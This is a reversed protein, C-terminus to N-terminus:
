FTWWVLIQVALLTYGIWTAACSVVMVISTLHCCVVDLMPLGEKHRRVAMLQWVTFALLLPPLILNLLSNTILVIRFMIVLSALIMLPMYIKPAHRLQEGKLRIYLSLFIVELLWAMTIILSTSMQIFNRDVLSRVIMVIVAFLGVGIVNTLMQRKLRFNEGRWRRPLLWRLVVYTIGLSLTLYFIVFISIFLVPVGRWESYNHEHDRFPAYKKSASQKAMNVYMPLHALISFYNSGGNRFINDQLMRYRSQAFANLQAVKEKVSGYYSSEAEMTELFKQMNDRLTEAYKLCESRDKLQQGSLLLPEHAEEDDMAEGLPSPPMAGEAEPATGSMTAELSDIANLVKVDNETLVEENGREVPPMSKLAVILSDYREIENRMRLMMKDYPLKGSRQNDLQRYLNVAQQCAYAMDFTNDISQSYLMLGIQECQNMFWVLQQHQAAGQQEYRAMFMQQKQYDAALEERLVGLTRALDREKLVAQAPVVAVVCVVFVVARLYLRHLYHGM